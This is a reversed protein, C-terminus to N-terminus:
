KVSGVLTKISNHNEPKSRLEHIMGRKDTALIVGDKRYWISDWEWGYWKRLYAQDEQGNLVRTM